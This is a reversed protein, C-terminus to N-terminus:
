HRYSLYLLVSLVLAVVLGGIILYSGQNLRCSGPCLTDGCYECEEMRDGNHRQDSM